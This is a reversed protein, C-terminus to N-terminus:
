IAWLKNPKASFTVEPYTKAPKASSGYKELSKEVIDEGFAPSLSEAIKYIDRQSSATGFDTKLQELWGFFAVPLASNENWKDAFNEDPNVPNPIYYYGGGINKLNKVDSIVNVINTIADFIDAENQYSQAALTTIIVSIPKNDKNKFYVDRHWKLIQVARQLPTRVKYDPVAEVNARMSEALAVKRKQFIVKMRETFWRAYAKPNSYQWNQLKKDTVLIADNLKEYDPIAPLIDMHFENAYNLTWCRRGEKLIKMYIDRQKLRDGVMRKLQEQSVNRKNIEMHCVLDIDYEDGDNVPKIMTGLRFSGQPYIIPRYIHLPSDDADLWKGVAEYRRVADEYKSDPIDLLEAIGKLLLSLQQKLEDFM